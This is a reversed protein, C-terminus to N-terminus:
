SLNLRGPASPAQDGPHLGAKKAMEFRWQIGLPQGICEAQRRHFRGDQRGRGTLCLRYHAAARPGTDADTLMEVTAQYALTEAAICDGVPEASHWRSERCEKAIFAAVKVPVAIGPDPYRLAGGAEAAM